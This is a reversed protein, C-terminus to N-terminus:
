GNLINDRGDFTSVTGISCSICVDCTYMETYAITRAHKSDLRFDTSMKNAWLTFVHNNIEKTLIIHM